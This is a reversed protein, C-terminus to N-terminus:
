IHLSSHYLGIKRFLVAANLSRQPGLPQAFIHPLSLELLAQPNGDLRGLLPSFGQVVKQEVARGSQSLRRNRIYEGVAYGTSVRFLTRFNYESAFIEKAVKQSTIMEPELLHEEIYDIAQQLDELWNM